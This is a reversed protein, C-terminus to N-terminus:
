STVVKRRHPDVHSRIEQGFSATTPSDFRYGFATLDVAFHEAVMEATADTYHSRYDGRRQGKRKHPLEQDPMKLTRLISRYDDQLNEYYGVFDILYTGDFDVLYERQPRRLALVLAPRRSEGLPTRLLWTTFDAFGSLRNAKLLDQREHQFHYYASVIRGWPNRVFGFKFLRDFMPPPLMEKAVVIPAHRPIKCGIRHGSLKSVRHCVLTPWFSSDFWRRRGLVARISTGGTKALHVFLYRYRDSILM